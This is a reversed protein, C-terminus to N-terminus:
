LRKDNMCKMNAWLWSHTHSVGAHSSPSICQLEAKQKCVCVAKSISSESRLKMWFAFVWMSTLLVLENSHFKFEKDCTGSLHSVASIQHPSQSVPFGWTSKSSSNEFVQLTNQAWKWLFHQKVSIIECKLQVVSFKGYVAGVRSASIGGSAWRRRKM